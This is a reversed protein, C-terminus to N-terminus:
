TREGAVGLVEGIEKEKEKSRSKTLSQSIKM